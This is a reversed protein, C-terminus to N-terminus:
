MSKLLITPLLHAGTTPNIIGSIESYKKVPLKTKHISDFLHPHGEQSALEDYLRRETSKDVYSKWQSPELPIKVVDL